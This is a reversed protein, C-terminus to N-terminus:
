GLLSGRHLAMGELDIVYPVPYDSAVTRLERLLATKGAGTFGFLTVTPRDPTWGALGDLVWRRYAKYGGTVQVAHVGVLSLLMVVNRSREGGRWCMVALRSGREAVAKLGRLYSPLDQSVADLAALRAASAGLTAYAKGVEARERDGLLPLNIAGVAHSEAFESPSRVDVIVYDGDVAEEVSIAPVQVSVKTM